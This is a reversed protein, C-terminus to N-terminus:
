VSTNNNYDITNNKDVNKKHFDQKVVIHTSGVCGNLCNLEIFIKGKFAKDRIKLDLYAIISKHIYDMSEQISKNIM